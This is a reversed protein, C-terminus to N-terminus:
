ENNKIEEIRGILFMHKLWFRIEEDQKEQSEWKISLNIDKLAREIHIKYNMTTKVLM